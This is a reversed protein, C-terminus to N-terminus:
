REGIRISIREHELTTDALVVRSYADPMVPLRSQVLRVNMVLEEALRLAQECTLEVFGSATIRTAEISM